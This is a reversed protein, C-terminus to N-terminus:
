GDLRRRQAQTPNKSRDLVGIGEEREGGQPSLAPTLPEQNEEREEREHSPSGARRKRMEM